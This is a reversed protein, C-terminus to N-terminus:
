PAPRVQYFRAPLAPANTDTFSFSGSGPPSEVALGLSVWNTSLLSANGLVEYAVGSGGTFQLVFNGGSPMSLGSLIAQPISVDYCIGETTSRAYVRGDSIAPSNWSKGGLVNNTRTIETWGTPTPRALVLSGSEAQIVLYGDMANGNAMRANALVVGGPGFNPGTWIVNGTALDVCKFPCNSSPGVIGYVYNSVCVSTAWHNKVTNRWLQTVNFVTNSQTVRAGAGGTNYNASAYVVSSTSSEWVVVPSAAWSTDYTMAYRWLVAGNTANVSVLGSQAFYIVQRTDGITAITPTAHTMLDSQGQWALSGNSKRIATLAKGAVKNHVFILEGEARPSAAAQWSIVGGGYDVNTQWINTGTNLDLCWLKLGQTLVYVRDGDITPTSRPGDGPSAGGNPYDPYYGQDVAKAWLETGTNADLAVCTENTTTTIRTVITLAKGQSVAFSSFGALLPVRWVVQPPVATWNTRIRDTSMGDYNAGRYQPWESAVPSLVAVLTVGALVCCLLCRGSGTLRIKQAM